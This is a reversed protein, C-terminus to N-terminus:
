NKLIYIFGLVLAAYIVAMITNISIVNAILEAIAISGLIFITAITILLLKLVLTKM